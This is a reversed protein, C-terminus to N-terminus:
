ARPPRRRRPLEAGPALVVRSSSGSMGALLGVVVVIPLWFPLGGSKEAPSPRTGATARAGGREARPGAACIRRRVSASPRRPRSEAHRVVPCAVNSTDASGRPRRPRPPAPAARRLTRPRLVPRDTPRRAPLATETGADTADGEWELFAGCSGCFQDGAPNAVGCRRCIVTGESMATTLPAHRPDAASRRVALPRHVPAASQRGRRRPVARRLAPLGHQRGPERDPRPAGVIDNHFVLVQVRFTGAADTTITPLKRSVGRSWALSVETEGPFGSGTAIIVIAPSASRRSWSSSRWRVAATCTRGVGAVGPGDHAVTLVAVRNGRDTPTFVVTVPCSEM